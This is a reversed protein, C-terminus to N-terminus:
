DLPTQWYPSPKRQSKMIENLEKVKDLYENALNKEESPDEIINYLELPEGYKKLIVKWEGLRMAQQFGGEYFEWYLPKNYFKQAIVEENGLLLPAFSVGDIDSPPTIGALEAFTPLIDWFAVPVSCKKGAEVKNKWRIIFPVRIGGEHLSRKYGKFPGASKFFVPDAGGEKHPGNDSSFFILTNEDIGLEDLLNLIKGVSDDLRTIMAAHNKQPQPWPRDSYPEDSPVEMGNGKARGLENNAHPITFSLYLFFNNSKNRRIFDLAEKTLLDHSYQTCQECVGPIQSPINGEIKERQTNRWLYDPYYNHAHTQNLYGYFEDFGQLNPIGSTEPEGLGWKGILGTVYGAKKLVEAITVDEPMLPVTSNARIRAHGTHYGTMLCCRSPACVTSGAYGDLFQIGERALRDINPTLIYNQGYCGVDGYGLDDALIIIINPKNASTNQANAKSHLSQVLGGTLPIALSNILFKRRSIKM